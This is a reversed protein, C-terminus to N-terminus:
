GEAPSSPEPLIVGLKEEKNQLSLGAYKLATDGDGGLLAAQALDAWLVSKLKEDSSAGALAEGRSLYGQALNRDGRALYYAGLDVKLALRDPFKQDLAVLAPLFDPHGSQGELDTFSKEFPRMAARCCRFRPRSSSSTLSIKFWTIEGPFTRFGDAITLPALAFRVSVALPSHIIGIMQHVISARLNM